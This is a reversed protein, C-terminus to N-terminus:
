SARAPAIEEGGLAKVASDSPQFWSRPTDIGTVEKKLEDTRRKKLTKEIVEAGAKDKNYPIKYYRAQDFFFQQDSKEQTVARKKDAEAKLSNDSLRIFESMTDGIKSVNLVGKSVLNEDIGGLLLFQQRANAKLNARDAAVSKENDTLFRLMKQSSIIKPDDDSNFIGAQCKDFLDKSIGQLVQRMKLDHFNECFFKCVRVDISAEKQAKIEKEAVSALLSNTGEHKEDWAKQDGEAKHAETWGKEVDGYLNKFMNELAEKHKIQVDSKNKFHKLEEPSRNLTYSGAIGILLLPSGILPAAEAMLGQAIQSDTAYNIVETFQSLIPTKDFVIEVAKDMQMKDMLQGLFGFEKSTIADGFGEGLSKNAEFIPGFINALPELYNFVQGAISFAGLPTLIMGLSILRSVAMSSANDTYKQADDLMAGHADGLDKEFKDIRKKYEAQDKTIEDILQTKIAEFSAIDLPDSSAQLRGILHNLLQGYNSQNPDIRSRLDQLLREKRAAYEQAYKSDVAQQNSWIGDGVKQIVTHVAGAARAVNEKLAANHSRRTTLAQKEQASIDCNNERLSQLRALNMDVVDQTELGAFMVNQRYELAPVAIHVMSDNYNKIQEITSKPNIHHRESLHQRIKAKEPNLQIDDIEGLQRVVNKRQVLASRREDFINEALDLFEDAKDAATKVKGFQEQLDKKIAPAQNHLKTGYLKDVREMLIDFREQATQLPPTSPTTAAPILPKAM